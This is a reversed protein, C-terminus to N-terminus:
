SSSVKICLDLSSPYEIWDQALHVQNVALSQVNPSKMNGGSSGIGGLGPDRMVVM